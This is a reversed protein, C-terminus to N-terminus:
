SETVVCLPTLRDSDALKFARYMKSIDTIVAVRHLRFRLLVDVLSPHVTHGVMLIDNLSVGSTTRASADFVVRLKTTTRSDKCVAHTPLYFVCEPSKELDCEPVIEAHELRFYEEMVDYFEENYKRYKLSKELSLFRNVAKSRSEGLPLCSDRKPLPVIFLGSESRTHNDEFHKLVLKKESSLGSYPQLVTHCKEVEWFRCLLDDTSEAVSFCSIVDNYGYVPAKVSGALMWGFKTKIAAPTGPPGSRRGQLLVSTFIDIGLLVDIRGPTGFTPDALHLDLLHDWKPTSIVPSVPLDCTIRPLVIASLSIKQKPLHVPSINIDVISQHYSLGTIGSVRSKYHSRPLKLTQVIRESIFSASSASDLVGRIEFKSGDPAEVLVKCTMLLVNSNHETAAHSTVLNSNEHPDVVSTGDQRTELHLM